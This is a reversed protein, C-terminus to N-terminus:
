KEAYCDVKIYEVHNTRSDISVFDGPKLTNLIDDASYPLNYGSWERPDAKNFLTIITKADAPVSLTTDNVFTVLRSKIDISKIKGTTEGEDNKFDVGYTPAYSTVCADLEELTPTDGFKPLSVETKFIDTTAQPVENKAPASSGLKLSFLSSFIAPNAMLVLGCIIVLFSALVVFDVPKYHRPHKQVKLNDPVENM